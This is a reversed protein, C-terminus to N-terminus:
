RDTDTQWRNIVTTTNVLCPHSHACERWLRIWVLTISQWTIMSHLCLGPSPLCVRRCGSSFFCQWCQHNFNAFSSIRGDCWPYSASQQRRRHHTRWTRRTLRIWPFSPSERPPRGWRAFASVTSIDMCCTHAHMDTYKCWTYMYIQVYMCCGHMCAHMSIHTCINVYVYVGVCVYVYVNNCIWICYM